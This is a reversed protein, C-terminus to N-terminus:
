QNFDGGPLLLFRSGSGAKSRSLLRASGAADVGAGRSVAAVLVGAAALGPAAARTQSSFFFIRRTPHDSLRPENSRANSALSALPLSIHTSPRLGSTARSTSMAASPRCSLPSASVTLDPSSASRDETPPSLLKRM